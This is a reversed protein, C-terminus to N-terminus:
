KYIEGESKKTCTVNPIYIINLIKNNVYKEINKLTEQDWPLVEIQKKNYIFDYYFDRINKLIKLTTNLKLCFTSHVINQQLKTINNYKITTINERPLKQTKKLYISRTFLFDAHAFKKINEVIIEVHNPEWNEDDDLHFYYTIGDSHMKEIGYMMAAGGGLKWLTKGVLVDRFHENRNEFYIKDQPFTNCINKFESDNEYYDGILYLKFNQYTQRNLMNFCNLLKTKSTGDKRYYTPCCIGINIINKKVKIIFINSENNNSVILKSHINPLCGIIEFPMNNENIIEVIKDVANKVEPSYIKDNYDDFLIYGDENVFKYFNLFDNIVDQYLHSGDIFLIDTKFNIENLKNLLNVDNSLYKNIEIKRNYLNLSNLNKNLLEEQTMDKIGYHKNPLNLPDICVINTPFKHQLMLSSSSGIYSGIETYTKETNGLLTRIDYLIHTHDHFKRGQIKNNLENLLEFSNSMKVENLICEM